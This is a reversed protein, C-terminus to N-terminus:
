DNKCYIMKFHTENESTVIFGLKKYLSLAPNIKLVQLTISKDSNEIIEKIIKTGIGKNQFEPLLRIAVLFNETPKKEYWLFGADQNDFVIIEGKEISFEKAFNEKQWDENWGWTESVYKKMSANHLRWLFDYDIPKIPRFTIKDIKEEM